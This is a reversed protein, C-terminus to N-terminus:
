EAAVIGTLMDQIAIIDVLSLPAMDVLHGRDNLHMALSYTRRWKEPWSSRPVKRREVVLAPGFVPGPRHIRYRTLKDSSLRVIPGAELAKTLKDLIAVASVV